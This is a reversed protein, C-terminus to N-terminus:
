SNIIYLLKLSNHNWSINFLEVLLLQWRKLRRFIVVNIHYGVITVSFWPYKVLSSTKAGGRNSQGVGFAQDPDAVSGVWSKVFFTNAL